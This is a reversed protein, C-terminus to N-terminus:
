VKTFHQEGAEYAARIEDVNMVSSIGEFKVQAPWWSPQDVKGGNKSYMIRKCAHGAFVNYVSM